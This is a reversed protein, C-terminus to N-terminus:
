GKKNKSRPPPSKHSTQALADVLRRTSANSIEKGKISTPLTEEYNGGGQEIELNHVHARFRAM